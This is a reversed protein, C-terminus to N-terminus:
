PAHPASRRYRGARDDYGSTTPTPTSYGTSRDHQRGAAAGHDPRAPQDSVPPDTLAPSRSVPTKMAASTERGSSGSGSRTATETTLRPSSSSPTSAATSASTRARRASVRARARSASGIGIVSATMVAQACKTWSQRCAPICRLTRSVSASIAAVATACPKGTTVCSASKSRIAIACADNRTMLTQHPDRLGKASRGRLWRSVPGEPAPQGYHVMGTCVTRCRRRAHEGRDCGARVQKCCNRRVSATLSM